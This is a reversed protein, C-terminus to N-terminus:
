KFPTPNSYKLVVLFSLDKKHDMLIVLFVLLESKYAIMCFKKYLKVNPLYLKYVIKLGNWNKM